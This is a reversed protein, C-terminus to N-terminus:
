RDHAAVSGTLHQEFTVSGYPAGPVLNAGSRFARFTAGPLRMAAVPRGSGAAARYAEAFSRFDRVEPGGIDAVRGAPASVVLEALRTAVNGADIPQLRFAPALLVPSWRQASLIREVFTHFQTSRLITHPLGSEAVVAEAALKGRYYPLPIRDIGVISLLVVHPHGAATAARVLTRALGSDDRYTTALHVVTGVGELARDIGAGSALDGTLLGPGTNRSLARVAAGNARLRDVLVRGVTGTAGTVLVENMDAGKPHDAATPRCWDLM